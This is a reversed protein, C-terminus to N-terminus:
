PSESRGNIHVEARKTVHQEQILGAPDDLLTYIEFLYVSFPVPLIESIPDYKQM